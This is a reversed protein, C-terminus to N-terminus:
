CTVQWFKTNCGRGKLAKVTLAISTSNPKMALTEANPDMLSLHLEGALHVFRHRDQLLDGSLYLSIFNLVSLTVFLFM